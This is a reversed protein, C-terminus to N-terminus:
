ITCLTGSGRQRGVAVQFKHIVHVLGRVPLLEDRHLGLIVVGKVDDNVPILVTFVDIKQIQHVLSVQHRQHLVALNRDFAGTGVATFGTIHVQVARDALGVQRFTGPRYLLFRFM